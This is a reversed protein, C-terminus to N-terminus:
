GAATPPVTHTQEIRRQLKVTMEAVKDADYYPSDPHGMNRLEHPDNALDSLEYQLGQPYTAPDYYM